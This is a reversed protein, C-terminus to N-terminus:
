GRAPESTLRRLDRRVYWWNAVVQFVLVGLASGVVPGAAGWRQALVISLGLNCPLMAVIMFAQYRLGRADTMYMGFPYKVAQLVLLVSFSLTLSVSVEIRGGSALDALTASFLTIVGALGAAVAAFLLAMQGPSVDSRTGTARAKAFIPWLALGAVAIVGVFPNYMQAALSYETLDGLDAVHSLVLRDSQMALPLAIMQILMPLATDMVKEGRVTRIRWALASAGRIAPRIARAALLLTLLGIVLSAVYAMVPLFGGSGGSDTWVVLLTVALVIPTQLVSLLIFVHLRGLGALVRQGFSVVLGLAIFVLCLAAAQPGSGSMLGDGLIEDWTDTLTVALALVVIVAASATLLRMASILVGRLVPDRRPDESAAVSNMVAASIGLDAFPILAGIGVLLAYQAYAAEGYEGIIVRTLVLGLVASIPLVLLRAAANAGMGRLAEARVGPSGSGMLARRIREPVARTGM